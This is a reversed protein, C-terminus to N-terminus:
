NTITGGVIAEHNVEHSHMFMQMENILQYWPLIQRSQKIYPDVKRGIVSLIHPYHRPAECHNLRMLWLGNTLESIDFDEKFLQYLSNIINNIDDRTQSSDDLPFVFANRVDPKLHIAQCLLLQTSSEDKEAFASAFPLVCQDSLGLSDAFIREFDEFRNPLRHAFRLIHNPAPLEDALFEDNLEPLPLQFLGPLIVDIHPTM